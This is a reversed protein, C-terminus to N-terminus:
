PREPSQPWREVLLDVLQQEGGPELLSRYRDEVEDWIRRGDRVGMFHPERREVRAYHHRPRFEAAAAVGARGRHLVFGGRNSPFDVVTMGARAVSVQQWLAPSGHFVLPAIDRRAYVDRRVAFFSAQIDPAVLPDGRCEGLLAVSEDAFQAAVVELTTRERFIVDPDCFVLVNAPCPDDEDVRDLARVAARMGRAHNLRRRHEVLELRPVASALRRLFPRGGDRSGNDVVILRRVSALDNEALTALMLKLHHTTSFNVVLIALQPEGRVAVSRTPRFQNDAIAIARDVYM